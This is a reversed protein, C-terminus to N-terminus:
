SPPDAVELREVADELLDAITQLVAGRSTTPWELGYPDVSRHDAHKVEFSLRELEANRRVAELMRKCADLRRADSGDPDFLDDYQQLGPSFFPAGAFAQFRILALWQAARLALARGEDLRNASMDSSM